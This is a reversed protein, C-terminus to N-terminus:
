GAPASYSSGAARVRPLPRRPVAPRPGPGRLRRFQVGRAPPLAAPPSPCSVAGAERRGTRRMGRSQACGLRAKRRSSPATSGRGPTLLAGEEWSARGTTGVQRHASERRQRDESDPVGLRGEESPLSLGEQGARMVRAWVDEVWWWAQQLFLM